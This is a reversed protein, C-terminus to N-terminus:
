YTVTELHLELSILMVQSYRLVGQQLFIVSFPFQTLFGFALFGVVREGGGGLNAGSPSNAHCFDSIPFTKSNQFAKFQFINTYTIALQYKLSIQYIKHCFAYKQDNVINEGNQYTTGLSIQCVKIYRKLKLSM